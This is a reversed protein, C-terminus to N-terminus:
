SISQLTSRMFQLSRTIGPVPDNADIEYELNVFGTYGTEALAGFLAAIPMAGEGVICQSEKVKLDRLDKAHMDLLRPGADHVAQVVDAGARAAHGIDMCLGVRPDLNRVASLVDYPSPFHKDEPGHNHIAIRIDYRRVFRELRPLVDPIPACVLLPMGAARAYEFYKQVDEDTDKAFDVTGGGVIRVGRSEIHGRLAMLEVPTKEYPVHVSKFNAYRVGLADFADLTKELTFNRLSYSAMGLKFQPAAVRRLAPACGTAALAIAASAGLFERRTQPVGGANPPSFQM